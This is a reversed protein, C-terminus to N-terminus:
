GLVPKDFSFFGTLLFLEFDPYTPTVTLSTVVQEWGCGGNESRDQGDDEGDAKTKGKQSCRRTDTYSHPCAFVVAHM